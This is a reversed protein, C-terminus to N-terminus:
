WSAPPQPSRTVLLTLLDRVRANEDAKLPAKKLDDKLCQIQVPASPVPAALEPRAPRACGGQGHGTRTELDGTAGHEDRGCPCKERHNTHFFQAMFMGAREANELAYTM